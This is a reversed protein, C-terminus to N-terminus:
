DTSIRRRHEALSLVKGSTRKGTKKRRPRSKTPGLLASLESPPLSATKGGTTSQGPSTGGETKKGCLAWEVLIAIPIVTDGGIPSSAIDGRKLADRIQAETVSLFEASSKVTLCFRGTAQIAASILPHCNKEIQQDM